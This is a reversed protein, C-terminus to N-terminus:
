PRQSVPRIDCAEWRGLRGAIVRWTVRAGVDISRTGDAINACHFPYDIGVVSRVTGLGRPDDFEAVTGTCIGLPVAGPPASM